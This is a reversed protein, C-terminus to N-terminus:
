RRSFCSPSVTAQSKLRKTVVKYPRGWPDTDVEELLEKWCQRKNVKIAKVLNSRARKYQNQLEIVNRGKKRGRTVARRASICEKRITAINESWWYIPAHKNRTGKRAMTADCAEAVKKMVKEAEEEADRASILGTDLATIFLEPDFEKVKWGMANPKEQMTEKRGIEWTIVRHDNLNFIDNVKWNVCNRVIGANVFTLDVISSRGDREYTPMSGTNLLELDLYSMTELLENGRNNNWRSGWEVAWANFDGAVVAPSHEKVDKMLRDLLDTFRGQEKDLRPPAYCSYFHIGGLKARVFGSQNCNATDQFPLNGCPWIAAEGTRDIVWSQTVGAKYPDAIIAVDIEWERVTQLLLNHAGHDHNLNHLLIKM